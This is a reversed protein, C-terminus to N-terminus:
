IQIDGLGLLYYKVIAPIGQWKRISYNIDTMNFNNLVIFTQTDSNLIIELPVCM